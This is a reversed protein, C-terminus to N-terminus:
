TFIQIVGFSSVSEVSVSDFNRVIDLNLRAQIPWCLSDMSKWFGLRPLHNFRQKGTFVKQCGTFIHWSM